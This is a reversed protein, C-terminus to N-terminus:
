SVYASRVMRATWKPKGPPPVVKKQNLHAAIEQLSKHNALMEGVLKRWAFDRNNCLVHALRVNEAVLHGGHMKLRPYHDANLAWDHMPTSKMAIHKPGKPCYCSPMECRLETLQGEKAMQHLIGRKVGKAELQQVVSLAAARTATKAM